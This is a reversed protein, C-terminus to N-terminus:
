NALLMYSIRAPSIKMIDFICVYKFNFSLSDYGRVIVFKESKNKDWSASIEWLSNLLSGCLAIKLLTDFTIHSQKSKAQNGGLNTWFVKGAKEGM